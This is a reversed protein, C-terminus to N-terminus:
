LSVRNLALESVLQLKESLASNCLGVVVRNQIMEELLQGCSHLSTIFDDVPEGWVAILSLESFM